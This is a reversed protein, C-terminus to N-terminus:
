RKAVAVRIGITDRKNASMTPFLQIRLGICDAIADSGSLEALTQAQTKNVILAKSLRRVGHVGEHDFALAIKKVKTKDQQDYVEVLNVEAVTVTVPTKMDVASLWPSPFAASWTTPPRNPQTPNPPRTNTNPTPPPPISMPKPEQKPPYPTQAPPPPHQSSLGAQEVNPVVYVSAPNRPALRELEAGPDHPAPTHMPAPTPTSLTLSDPATLVDAANLPPQAAHLLHALKAAEAREQAQDVGGGRGPRAGDAFVRIVSVLERRLADAEPNPATLRRPMPPLRRPPPPPPPLPTTRLM